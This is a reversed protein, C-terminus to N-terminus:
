HWREKMVHQADKDAYLQIRGSADQLVFFPGRKALIRGSVAVKFDMAELEEKSYEGHSNQLAQAEHSRRFQNPFANGQSRIHALKSRREAILKNEDQSQDTM